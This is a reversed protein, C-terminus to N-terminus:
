ANKQAQDLIDFVQKANAINDFTSGSRIPLFWFFMLYMPNLTAFPGLQITGEGNSKEELSVNSLTRLHFSKLQSRFIGSRILARRNTIGYVTNRRAWADHMFRGVTMYLGFCIFVFGFLPFILTVFFPLHAQTSSASVIELTTVTWFVAFAIFFLGIPIFLADSKRFLLGQRPKGSWLLDEGQGLHPIIASSDNSDM